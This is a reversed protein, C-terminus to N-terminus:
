LRVKPTDATPPEMGERYLWNTSGDKEGARVSSMAEDLTKFSIVLAYECGPHVSHVIFM